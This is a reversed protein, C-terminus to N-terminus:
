TCPYPFEVIYPIGNLMYRMLGFEGSKRLIEGVKPPPLKNLDEGNAVIGETRTPVFRLEGTEAIELLLDDFDTKVYLKKGDTSVGYPYTEYPVEWSRLKTLKPREKGFIYEQVIPIETPRAIVVEQADIVVTLEKATIKTVCIPTYYYGCCCSSDAPAVVPLKKKAGDISVVDLDFRVYEGDDGPIKTPKTQRQKTKRTIIREFDLDYQFGYKPLLSNAYDTIEQIGASSKSRKYNAIERLIPMSPEPRPEPTPAIALESNATTQAPVDSGTKCGASLLLTLLIVTPIQLMISVGKGIIAYSM